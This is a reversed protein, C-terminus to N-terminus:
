NVTLTVEEPGWQSEGPKPSGSKVNGKERTCGNSCSNQQTLEAKKTRGGCITLLRPVLVLDQSIPCGVFGDTAPILRNELKIKEDNIRSVLNIFTKWSAM